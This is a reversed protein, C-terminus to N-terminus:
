QNLVLGAGNNTNYFPLQIASKTTGGILYPNTPTTGAIAPVFGPNYSLTSGPFLHYGNLGGASPHKTWMYNALTAHSGPSLVCGENAGIAAYDEVALIGTTCLTAPGELFTGISIPYNQVLTTDFVHINGGGRASLATGGVSDYVTGLASSAGYARHEICYCGVMSIDWVPNYADCGHLICAVMSVGGALIRVSHNAGVVGINCYQFYIYGSGNNRVTVNGGIKIPAFLEFTDNVSPEVVNFTQYDVFIGRFVGSGEDKSIPSWYGLHPGSNIRLIAGVWGQATINPTGNLTYRGSTQTAGNWPTVASITQSAILVWNYYQKTGSIILAGDNVVDVHIDYNNDFSGTLWVIMTGVTNGDVVQNGMRYLFEEITAIASVDTLGDNNDDGSGSDIWVEANLNWGPCGRQIDRVWSGGGLADVVTIGNATLTSSPYYYWLSNQPKTLAANGVTLNTTDISSLAAMTSVSAVITVYIPTGDGKALLTPNGSAGQYKFDANTTDIYPYGQTM